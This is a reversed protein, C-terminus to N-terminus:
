SPAGRLVSTSEKIKLFTYAMGGGIIMKNVQRLTLGLSFPVM